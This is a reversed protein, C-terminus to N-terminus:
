RRLAISQLTDGEIMVHTTGTIPALAPSEDATESAPNSDDDLGDASAPESEEAAAAAISRITDTAPPAAPAPRAARPAPSSSAPATPPTTVDRDRVLVVVAAILIGAIIAWIFRM